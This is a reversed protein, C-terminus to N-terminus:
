PCLYPSTPEIWGCGCKTQTSSNYKEPGVGYACYGGGAHSGTEPSYMLAYGSGDNVACYRYNYWYYSTPGDAPHATHVPDDPIKPIYSPTLYSALDYAVLSDVGPAYCQDWTHRDDLPYNGGHDNAYLELAVQLEHIDAKRKADRSKERATSLSALIISALMSIIAIVVLLEILTFGRTTNTGIRLM